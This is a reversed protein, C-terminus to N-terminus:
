NQPKHCEFRVSFVLKKASKDVLDLTKTLAYTKTMKNYCVGQHIWANLATLSVLSSSKFGGVRKKRDTAESEKPPQGCRQALAQESKIDM